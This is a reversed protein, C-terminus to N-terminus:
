SLLQEITELPVPKGYLYGQGFHCKFKKLFEAQYGTEIGETIVECNLTHALSLITRVIRRNKAHDELGTIFSRDIKLYDIPFALLYNLSSYGTGFDDLGLKVGFVKLERIFQKVYETHVTLATETMELHIRTPDILTTKLADMMFDILDNTDFQKGSLNLSLYLQQKPFKQLWNELQRLAELLMWRDLEIVLGSTEAQAIFHAPFLLGRKPHQWRALVELGVIKKSHLDVIPQYYPIFQQQKIATRIESELLLAQKTAAHMKQDFIEYQEQTKTKARSLAIGADRLIETYSQYYKAYFAIGISATLYLVQEQLKFPIELCHQLRIAVRVAEIPERLDCLLIPFEAGRTRSLTTNMVTDSARIQARLRNALTILLQEVVCVDFSAGIDTFQNVEFLLVGFFRTEERKCRLFAQELRDQFMVQNPLDTLTDKAIFETIDRQSGVMRIPNGATDFHAVGRNQIFRHIGDQHLIRYQSEFYPTKQALHLSLKAKLNDRDPEYVRNLWAEPIRQFTGAPCGFMNEFQPSYYCTQAPIDWDWLADNAGEVALTYREESQKYSLHTQIRALAVAFDIPKTVYDNAGEQLASVIDESRDKASVMIIPLQVPSYRMRLTKLIDIGSIDPLMIDLLILDIPTHQKELYHLAEQGNEATISIFGARTLRRSLLDRNMENDDVILLNQAVTM